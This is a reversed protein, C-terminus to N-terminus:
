TRAQGAYGDSNTFLDIAPDLGAIVGSIEDEFHARPRSAARTSFKREGFRSGANRRNPFIPSRVGTQNSCSRRPHAVPEYLHLVGIVRYDTSNPIGTIGSLREEVGPTNGYSVPSLWAGPQARYKKTEVFRSIRRAIATKLFFELVQGHAFRSAFNDRARSYRRNFELRAMLPLM